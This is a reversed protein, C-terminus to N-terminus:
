GPPRVHIIAGPAVTRVAERLVPALPKLFEMKLRKPFVVVVGFSRSRLTQQYELNRDGTVFVEFGSAEARRLLEGNLVGRWGEAAVSSVIQGPLEASLERPLNEDLLVRRPEGLGGTM